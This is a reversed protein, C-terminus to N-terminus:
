NRIKNYWKKLGVPIIRMRSIVKNLEKKEEPLLIQQNILSLLAKAKEFNNQAYAELTSHLFFYNRVKKILQVDFTPYGTLIKQNSKSFLLNKQEMGVSRFLSYFLDNTEEAFKPLQSGTKSNNHVRFNVLVKDDKAISDLGYYFLYRIWWEKDMVYHFDENLLGIKDWVSRRFFTEPQDIRAWGITKALSGFYVDTGTSFKESTESFVRSRGCYCSVAADSFKQAIHYLAGPMYYDDSNLWNVIEGTVKAIGKNIADSQGRDKKSIWWALHKQYKKIIEVSNDTSGGDVIIYELARYNQELVSCITQELYHGQNFSPTIISIRPLTIVLAM